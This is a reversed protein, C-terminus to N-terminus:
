PLPDLTVDFQTDGNVTVDKRVNLYSGWSIYFSLRSNPVDTFVYSGGADTYVRTHGGIGCSDCYMELAPIPVPGSPTREFVRGYLKHLVQVEIRIDFHTEGTVAVTRTDVEYGDKSTSVTHSGAYLNTLQYGGAQDTLTEARAGGNEARVRAGQVAVLGNATSAFVTGSLSSTPRNPEVSTSPAAPSGSCSCVVILLGLATTIRGM